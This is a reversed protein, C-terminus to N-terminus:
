SKTLRRTESKRKGRRAQKEKDYMIPRHLAKQFFGREKVEGWFSKHKFFSTGEPCKMKTNKFNTKTPLSKQRMGTLVNKRRLRNTVHALYLGYEILAIYLGLGSHTTM